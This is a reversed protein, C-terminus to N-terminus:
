YVYVAGEGSFTENSSSDDQSSAKEHPSLVALVGNRDTDIAFGFLDINNQVLSKLYGNNSIFSESVDYVYVAGSKKALGNYKNTYTSYFGDLRNSEFPAGVALRTGKANLSVSMGFNDLRNANPARVEKGDDWKGDVYNYLVVAGESFHDNDLAGKNNLDDSKGEDTIKYFAYYNAMPAGVAMKNGNNSLSVSYGFSTTPEFPYTYYSSFISRSSFRKEEYWGSTNILDQSNESKRFVYVSEAFPAGVAITRGDQSVDLSAGFNGGRYNNSSKLYAEEYWSNEKHAYVYVAGSQDSEDSYPQNIGSARGDEEFAGVALISGDHSM